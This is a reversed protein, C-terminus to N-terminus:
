NMLRARPCGHTQHTPSKMKKAETYSPQHRTRERVTEDKWQYHATLKTMMASNALPYLQLLFRSGFKQGPRSKFRSAECTSIKPFPCKVGLCSVRRVAVGPCKERRNRTPNRGGSIGGTHIYAIYPLPNTRTRPNTTRSTTTRPILKGPTFNGVSPSKM